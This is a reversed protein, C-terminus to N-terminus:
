SRDYFPPPTIGLSRLYVYAQGRHHIENDIAYLIMWIGTGKWQGFATDVEQFRDAFPDAATVNAAPRQPESGHAPQSASRLFDWFGRLILGALAGLAILVVGIVCALVLSIIVEIKALRGGHAQEGIIGILLSGYVGLACVARRLMLRAEFADSGYRRCRKSVFLYGDRLFGLTSDPARARPIASM